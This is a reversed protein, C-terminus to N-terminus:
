KNQIIKLNSIIFAAIQEGIEISGLPTPHVGEYFHEDKFKHNYLDIINMGCLDKLVTNLSRISYDYDIGSFGEGMVNPIGYIQNDKEILYRHPQTVCIPLAGMDLIYELIKEVRSKFALSNDFSLSVTKENINNETYDSESYNSKSHGAYAKSQGKSKFFRYIPLLGNVIEFKKLFIKFDNINNNDYVSGSNIREFSADNIGVYLLVYKPNLNPIIPFWNKFSFIHGWSSHGDVGANSVCGFSVDYEKLKKQIVSQYTYKFPVYRQDTTSGGVTLIEIDKNSMCNDRLGFENRKYDAIKETTNYLKSTDYSFEFNRLINAENLIFWPANKNKLKLFLEILLIGVLISITFILVSIMKKKIWSM